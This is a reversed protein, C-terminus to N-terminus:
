RRDPGLLALPSALAALVFWYLQAVILCENETLEYATKCCPGASPVISDSNGSAEVLNRNQGCSPPTLRFSQAVCNHRRPKCGPAQVSSLNPDYAPTGPVGVDQRARQRYVETLPGASGVCLGFGGGRASPAPQYRRGQPRGHPAAPETRRAPRALLKRSRGILRRGLAKERCACREVARATPTTTEQPWRRQLQLLRRRFHRV